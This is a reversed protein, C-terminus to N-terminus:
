YRFRQVEFGKWQQGQRVLYPLDWLHLRKDQGISLFDSKDQPLNKALQNLATSQAVPSMLRGMKNLFISVREPSEALSSSQVSRQLYSDM